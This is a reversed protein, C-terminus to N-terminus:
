VDMKRLPGIWLGNRFETESGIIKYRRLNSDVCWIPERKLNTVPITFNYYFYYYISIIKKTIINYIKEM